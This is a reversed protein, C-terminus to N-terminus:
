MDRLNHRTTDGILYYEAQLFSFPWLVNDCTAISVTNEQSCAM